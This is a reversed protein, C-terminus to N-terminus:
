YALNSSISPQKLYLEKLSSLHELIAEKNFMCEQFCTMADAILNPIADKTGICNSGRKIRKEQAKQQKRQFEESWHKGTLLDVDQTSSDFIAELCVDRCNDLLWENVRYKRPTIGNQYSRNIQILGAYKLAEPNAHRYHNQLFVSSIPM